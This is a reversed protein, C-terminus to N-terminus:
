GGESLLVVLGGKKPLAAIAVTDDLLWTTNQQIVMMIDPGQRHTLDASLDAVRRALDLVHTHAVKTGVARSFDCHLDQNVVTFWLPDLGRAAAVLLSLLLRAHVHAVAAMTVLRHIHDLGAIILMSSSRRRELATVMPKFLVLQRAAPAV